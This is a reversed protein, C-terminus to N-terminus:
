FYLRKNLQQYGDAFDSIEKTSSTGVIDAVVQDIRQTDLGMITKFNIVHNYNKPDKNVFWHKTHTVLLDNVLDNRILDSEDINNKNYPPYNPSAWKAYEEPTWLNPWAKRVYLETVKKYDQDDAHIYVIEIDPNSDAFDEPLVHSYYLHKNPRYNGKWYNGIFVIGPMGKWDGQGLNHCDGISSFQLVGDINMMRAFISVLFHGGTGPCCYVLFKKM